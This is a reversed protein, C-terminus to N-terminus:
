TLKEMQLMGDCIKTVSHTSVFYLNEPCNGTANLPRAMRQSKNAMLQKSFTDHPTITSRHKYPHQVLQLQQQTIPHPIRQQNAFSPHHLLM